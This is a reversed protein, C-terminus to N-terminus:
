EGERGQFDGTKTKYPTLKNKQEFNDPCPLSCIVFEKSTRTVKLFGIDMAFNLTPYDKQLMKKAEQGEGESMTTIIMVADIHSSSQPSISQQPTQRKMVLLAYKAMVAPLSILQIITRIIRSSGGSEREKEVCVVM